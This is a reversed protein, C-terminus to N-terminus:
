QKREKKDSRLCISFEESDGSLNSAKMRFLNEEAMEMEFEAIEFTELGYDLRFDGDKEMFHERLYGDYYYILTQFLEGDYEDELVLLDVGDQKKMYVCGSEDTQRIKTAVYSLSTRLKFNDNNATVVNRYVGVGINMLFLSAVAFVGVIFLISVLSVLWVRHEQKEEETMEWEMREDNLCMSQLCLIPHLAIM